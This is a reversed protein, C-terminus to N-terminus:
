RPRHAARFCALSTLTSITAILVARSEPRKSWDQLKVVLMGVKGYYLEVDRSSVKSDQTSLTSDRWDGAANSQPVSRSQGTRYVIAAIALGLLLVVIGIAYSAKRRTASLNPTPPNDNVASTQSNLLRTPEIHSVVLTSHGVPPPPYVRQPV